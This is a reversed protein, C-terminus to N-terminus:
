SNYFVPSCRISGISIGNQLKVTAHKLQARVVYQQFYYVNCVYQCSTPISFLPFPVTRINLSLNELKESKDEFLKQLVFEIQKAWDLCNWYLAM